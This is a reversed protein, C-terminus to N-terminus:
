ENERGVAQPKNKRSKGVFEHVAVAGSVAKIVRECANHGPELVRAIRAQLIIDVNAGGKGKEIINRVGRVSAIVFTITNRDSLLIIVVVVFGLGMGVLVGALAGKIWAWSATNFCAPRSGIKHGSM